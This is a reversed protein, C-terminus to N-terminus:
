ENASGCNELLTNSIRAAKTVDVGVGHEGPQRETTDLCLLGGLRGAQTDFGWPVVM